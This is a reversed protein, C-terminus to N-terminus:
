SKLIRKVRKDRKDVVVHKNGSKPHFLDHYVDHPLKRGKKVGCRCGPHARFREDEAAERTAFLKHKAHKRCANCAECNHDAQQSASCRYHSGDTALRYIHKRHRGRDALVGAPLGFTAVLAGAAAGTRTLFSRRSTPNQDM